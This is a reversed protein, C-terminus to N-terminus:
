KSAEPLAVKKLAYTITLKKRGWQRAKQVDNGMYIDIRNKWRYHMKDKVLYVGDLGEIKVMTNHEIGKDLLDQSIAICKMGPRLTDGWATVQPHGATQSPVSNYASITVQLPVWEFDDEKDKCSVLLILLNCAAWGIKKM